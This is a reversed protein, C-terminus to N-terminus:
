TISLLLLLLLLLLSVEIAGYHRPKLPAVRWCVTSPLQSIDLVVLM